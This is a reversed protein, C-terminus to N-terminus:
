PQEPYSRRGHRWSTKGKPSICAPSMDRKKHENEYTHEHTRCRWHPKWIAVNDTIINQLFGKKFISLFFSLLVIIQVVFCVKHTYKVDGVCQVALRQIYAVMSCHQQIQCSELEGYFCKNKEELLSQHGIYCSKRTSKSVKRTNQLNFSVCM